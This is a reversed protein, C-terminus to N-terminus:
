LQAITRMSVFLRMPDSTFSEFMDFQQYFALAEEDLVDLVLGYAPLGAECLNAAHRLAYVLSKAGIGRGQYASSVALRALIVVPIPYTPLSHQTPIVERSVTASALTYYAAVPQNPQDASDVLVYTRSLGLKGHKVAYRALFENMSAKGCDFSKLDHQKKNLATFVKALPM